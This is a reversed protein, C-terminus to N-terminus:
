AAAELKYSTLKRQERLAGRLSEDIENKKVYVRCREGLVIAKKRVLYEHKFHKREQLQLREDRATAGGGMVIRLSMSSVLKLMNELYLRKALICIVNCPNISVIQLNPQPIRNHNM